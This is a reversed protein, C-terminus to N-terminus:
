QYHFYIVAFTGNCKRPLSCSFDSKMTPVKVAEAAATIQSSVIPFPFLHPPLLSFNEIAKLTLFFNLFNVARGGEM